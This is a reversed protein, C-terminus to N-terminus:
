YAVRGRVIVSPGAREVRADELRVAGDTAHVGIAGLAAIAPTGYFFPAIEITVDDVFRERLFATLVRAGGEVLLREVGWTQLASLAAALSVLGDDGAPALRVEAGLAVLRSQNEPTALNRVGIVLVGPGPAFVRAATPLDLRSALVVRRPQPGECARVTLGPDDIRVTCSGVLVADHEARARHALEVGERSSLVTRAFPLAIRGDLSQAFHLSVHPRSPVTM